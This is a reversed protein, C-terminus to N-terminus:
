KEIKGLNKISVVNAFIKIHFSNFLMKFRKSTILAMAVILITSYIAAIYKKAMPCHLM